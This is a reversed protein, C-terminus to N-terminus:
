KASSVAAVAGVVLLTTVVVGTTMGFWFTKYFPPSALEKQADVLKTELEETVKKYKDQELTIVKKLADIEIQDVKYQFMPDLKLRVNAQQLFNAWRIATAPDFLQGDHPAPEGKKVSTIVDPGSPVAILPSPETPEARAVSPLLVLLLVLLLKRM